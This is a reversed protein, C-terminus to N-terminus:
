REDVRFGDAFAARILPKEPSSLEDHLFQRFFHRVSSATSPDILRKGVSAAIRSAFWFTDPSDEADSRAYKRDRSL